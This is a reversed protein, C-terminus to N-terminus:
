RPSTLQFCTFISSIFHNQPLSILGESCSRFFFQIIQLSKRVTLPKFSRCDFIKGLTCKGETTGACNWTTSFKEANIIFCISSLGALGLPAKSPFPIKVPLKLLDITGTGVLNYYVQHWTENALMETHNWVRHTLDMEWSMWPSGPHLFVKVVMWWCRPALGPVASWLLQLIPRALPISELSPSSIREAARKLSSPLQPPLKERFSYGLNYWTLPNTDWSFAWRRNGPQPGCKELSTYYSVNIPKEKTNWVVM